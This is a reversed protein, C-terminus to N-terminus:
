RTTQFSATCVGDLSYGTPVASGGASASINLWQNPAFVTALNADQSSTSSAVITSTANTAMLNIQSGILTTTSVNGGLAFQTPNKALTYIVSTTAGAVEVTTRGGMLLTSTAAPSQLQCVTTTAQIFSMKRTYTCVGGLCLYDFPIDPGALSGLSQSPQQRTTEVVVQKIPRAVWFGTAALVAGVLLAITLNKGNM